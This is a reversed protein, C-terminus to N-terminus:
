EDGTQNENGAADGWASELVRMTLMDGVLASLLGTLHGLLAQNAQIAAPPDVSLFDEKLTRFLAEMTQPPQTVTLWQFQPAALRVARGYLAGFGADGILPTLYTALREWAWSVSPDCHMGADDARSALVAAIMQQRKEHYNPM